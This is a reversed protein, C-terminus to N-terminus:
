DGKGRYNQAYTDRPLGQSRVKKVLAFAEDRSMEGGIAVLYPAHGNPSFVEARLEPHQQAVTEAKHQAQEQRNYTYAIVRWQGGATTGDNTQMAPASPPAAPASTSAPATSAAVPAPTSTEQAATGPDAPRGHMFHWGIWLALILALAIGVM